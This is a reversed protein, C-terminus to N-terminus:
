AALAGGRKRRLWLAVAGLTLSGLPPLLLPAATGGGFMSGLLLYAATILLAGVTGVFIATLASVFAVGRLRGGVLTGVVALPGALLAGALCFGGLGLILYAIGDFADMGASALMARM